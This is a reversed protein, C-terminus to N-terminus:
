EYQNDNSLLLCADAGFIALTYLPIQACLETSFVVNGIVESCLDLLPKPHKPGLVTRRSTEEDSEEDEISNGLGEADEDDARFDEGYAKWYRSIAKKWRRSLSFIQRTATPM